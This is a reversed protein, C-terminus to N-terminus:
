LVTRWFLELLDDPTATGNAVRRELAERAM